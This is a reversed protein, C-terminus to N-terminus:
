KPGPVACFGGICRESPNCCPIAGATCRNSTTVCSANPPPAGCVLGAEGASCSGNCCQDGTSCSSGDPRCPDLVWFARSNGALLEQAPLYFAPHSADTGPEANLDIAAVWLKKPTINQVLDVGRPDSCFPPITAVNGYLRRSTFVVWAYGGTPIPNVTPMYNLDVDSAHDPDIDGVQNGDAKCDMSAAAPLNPLYGQGNLRDLPTVKTTDATNTWYLKGKAGRRTRLGGFSNGEGSASQRQFVISKADPLFAAWGPRVAEPQGTADFVVRSNSFTKTTANFDMVVLKQTPNALTSARMPNFAVLKGDPSFAPAGLNYSGDEKFDLLGVAETASEGPLTMMRGDPTLASKGDPYFGPYVSNTTASETVSSPTIAYFSSVSNNNGHQAILSAGNASVSHCVRCKSSDGNSGAVLRPGSDGVRISLVAGGFKKDGGIADNHQLALRTGYSNYYITGSLRGAAITWTRRIPGYAQGDKAVVISVHLRDVGGSATPGGATDTAMEWVDQPIPIRTFKRSTTALIAPRGFTGTWSFSKTTTELHIAVADADGPDWQWQLLPALIGRPFVTDDYPYLLTLKQAVGDGTPARLAALTAENTVAVGLGEGGTGGVGGGETLDAVGAPVQAQQAPISANVGNQTGSVQVVVQRKVIQNNLSASITVLGGTTGTATFTAGSSPGAPIAGLEGRDVSWAPSVPRGNLTATFAVTPAAQGLVAQVTQLGAPQVDFPQSADPDGNPGSDGFEWDPDNADTRGGSADLDDSTSPFESTSSSGCAAAITAMAVTTALIIGYRSSRIGM